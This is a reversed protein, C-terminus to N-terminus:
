VGRRQRISVAALRAPLGTTTHKTPASGRVDLASRRACVSSSAARAATARARRFGGCARRCRGGRAELEAGALAVDAAEIAAPREAVLGAQQQAFGEPPDPGVCRDVRGAADVVHPVAALVGHDVQAVVHERAAARVRHDIMPQPVLPHHLLGGVRGDRHDEEVDHEAVAGDRGAASIAGAIAAARARAAVPLRRMAKTPKTQPVAPSGCLRERWSAARSFDPTSSAALLAAATRSAARMAPVRLGRHFREDACLHVDDVDTDRRERCPDRAGPRLCRLDLPRRWTLAIPRRRGRDRLQHSVRGDLRCVPPCEVRVRRPVPEPM